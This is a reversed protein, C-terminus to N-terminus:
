EVAVTVSPTMTASVCVRKIYQGKASQPKARRIHEIFAEVNAQLDEAPFSLRGMPAHINGGADTRYEVKGASFEKIAQEINPSVTGSKPTPMKGQPGLVRGLKGVKGMLSPHAVAVDFGMWGDSVKKILEDAGAELAGAAKAAEVMEEPVFAIVSKTKGIGKPLSVAGRLAQDAQKPDVGLHMVVEVTQDFGKRKRAGKYKKEGAVNGMQKLLALAEGLPKPDPQGGGRAVQAKYRVSQQPM